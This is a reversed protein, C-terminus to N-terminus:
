GYEFAMVSLLLLVILICFEGLACTLLFRGRGAQEGDARNNTASGNTALSYVTVQFKPGSSWKKQPM